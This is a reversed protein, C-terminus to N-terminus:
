KLLSALKAMYPHTMRQSNIIMGSAALAPASLSGEAAPNYRFGSRPTTAYGAIWSCNGGGGARM